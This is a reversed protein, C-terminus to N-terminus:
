EFRSFKQEYQFQCLIPNNIIKWMLQEYKNYCKWLKKVCLLSFFNHVCNCLKHVLTANCSYGTNNYNTPSSQVGLTSNDATLLRQEAFPGPLYWEPLPSRGSVKVFTTCRQQIFIPGDSCCVTYIRLHKFVLKVFLESTEIIPLVLSM